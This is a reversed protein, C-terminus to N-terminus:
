DFYKDVISTISPDSIPVTEALNEVTTYLGQYNNAIYTAKALTTSDKFGVGGALVKGKFYLYDQTTNNVTSPVTGETDTMVVLTGTERLDSAVNKTRTTVFDVKTTKAAVAM